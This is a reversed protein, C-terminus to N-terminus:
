PTVVDAAIQDCLARMTVRSDARDAVLRRRLHKSKDLNAGAALLEVLADGLGEASGPDLLRGLRPDQPDIWERNQPLDTVIPYSGTALAELLSTSTGDSRAASVYIESSRLRHLLQERTIGGLFHMASRSAKPIWADAARVVDPLRRGRNSFCVDARELIEPRAACAAVILTNNYVDEFARTCLIVPRSEGGKRLPYSAVDIGLYLAHVTSQPALQRTAAGLEIGNAFVRTACGLVRRTLRMAAPSVKLVDSGVAYVFYPRVRSLYAATSFAGGYLTLLAHAGSDRLCNPLVSVLKGIRGAPQGSVGIPWIDMSRELATLESPASTGPPLAALCTLAVNGTAMM